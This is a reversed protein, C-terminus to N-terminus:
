GGSDTIMDAAATRVSGSGLGTVGGGVVTVGDVGVVGERSVVGVGRMARAGVVEGREGVCGCVRVAGGGVGVATGVWAAATVM